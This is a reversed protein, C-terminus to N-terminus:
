RRHRKKHPKQKVAQVQTTLKVGTAATGSGHALCKIRFDLRGPRVRTVHVVLYTAGATFRVKPKRGHKAQRVKALTFRDRPDSWTLTFNVAKTRRPVKLHRRKVQGATSFTDTFTKVLPQCALRSAITNVTQQLTSADVSPFYLGGTSSAIAQLRTAAPDAPSAPGIGMGIVYTPPGGAHGNQYAGYNHGGDTLFIRAGARPNDAAAKAFAANYDTGGLSVLQQGVAANIAANHAPISTPAFLTSADSSFKVAGFTRGALAPQAAFLKIAQGRLVNPDSIIMSGSDDVIAEINSAPRCTPAAAAAGPAAGLVTPLPALLGVVLLGSATTITRRRRGQSTTGM